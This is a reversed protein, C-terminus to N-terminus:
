GDVWPNVIEELSGFFDSTNRTVLALGHVRATAVIFGDMVGIPHGQGKREAIVLGWENAVEYGIPLIRNEFRLSVDIKLWAELERRRSGDTLCEIGNRIEAITVVSLYVEDEDTSNVWQVVGRNPSGKALESIVNTDILFSV